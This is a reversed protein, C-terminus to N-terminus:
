KIGDPIADIVPAAKEAIKESAGTRDMVSSGFRALGRGLAGTAQLGGEVAGKAAALTGPDKEGPKYVNGVELSKGVDKATETVNEKLDSFFGGVPSQTAKKLREM